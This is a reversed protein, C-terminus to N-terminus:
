YKVKKITISQQTTYQGYGKTHSSHAFLEHDRTNIGIGARYTDTGLFLNGDVSTSFSNVDWLPFGSDRVKYTWGADGKFEGFKKHIQYNTSSGVLGAVALMSALIKRRRTWFKRDPAYDLNVIEDEM